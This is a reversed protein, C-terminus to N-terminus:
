EEIKKIGINSDWTITKLYNDKEKIEEETLDKYEIKFPNFHANIIADLLNPYVNLDAGDRGAGSIFNWGDYEEDHETAPYLLCKDYPNECCYNWEVYVAFKRNKM